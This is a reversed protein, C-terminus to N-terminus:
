PANEVAREGRLLMVVATKMADEEEGQRRENHQRIGVMAALAPVNGNGENGGNNSCGGGQRRMVIDMRAFFAM